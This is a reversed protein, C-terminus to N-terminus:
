HGFKGYSDKGDASCRKTKLCKVYINGEPKLTEPTITLTLPGLDFSRGLKLFKKKM